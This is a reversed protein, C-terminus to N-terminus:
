RSFNMYKVNQFFYNCYDSDSKKHAIFKSFGNIGVPM